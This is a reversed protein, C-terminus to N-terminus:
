GAKCAPSLSSPCRSDCPEILTGGQADEGMLWNRLRGDWSGNVGTIFVASYCAPLSELPVERLSSEFPVHRRTSIQRLTPVNVLRQFAGTNFVTMVRNDDWPVSWNFNLEHTHGYVFFRASRSAPLLSRLHSGIVRDIPIVNQLLSGGLTGGCDLRDKVSQKKRVAITDCLALVDSEPTQLSDAAMTDMQKRVAKWEASSDYLLAERFPDEDSLADAFLRYGLARGRAASPPAGSTGPAGLSLKQRFSTEFLNFKLFQAFDAPTGLVGRENMYLKVGESLPLLNDILPDSQEVKNFLEQVFQEGWTRDLYQQNGIRSTVVPWRPFRNPDAGIQHGHEVIAVGDSSIWRGTTVLSVRTPTPSIATLVLRGVDEILLAADHNGPIVIVHNTGREAFTGLLRLDEQHARVVATTVEIVEPITCGHDGDPGTCAVGPHQWLELLDGAIVLDVRDHGERSIEDLFASLAHTWRFDEFPSWAGGTKGPGFHLDSIAVILRPEDPSPSPQAPGSLTSARQLAFCLVLGCGVVTVQSRPIM